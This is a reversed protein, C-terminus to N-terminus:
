VSDLFTHDGTTSAYSNENIVSSSKPWIAMLSDIQGIYGSDKWQELIKVIEQSGLKSIRLRREVM